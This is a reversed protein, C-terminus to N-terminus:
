WLTKELDGFWSTLLLSSLLVLELRNCTQFLELQHAYLWRLGVDLDLCYGCTRVRKYLLKGKHLCLAWWLGANRWQRVDFRLYAVNLVRNRQKRMCNLFILFQMFQIFLKLGVVSLKLTNFIIKLLYFYFSSVSNKILYVM